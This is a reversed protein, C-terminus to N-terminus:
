RAVDRRRMGAAGLAVGGIAIALCAVIGVPDWAGVMPQGMHSTLALQHVWDPLNLPPALLDILYTAVVLVAAIEGALSTRWLGGVAFGVGIVAAAYLGLSASGLMVTGVAVDGSAGGAATAVAFILTMLADAILAGIAGTIVWRARTLPTALIQELRGDTEDSAWKAVFTAAAFGAAIYFLQVFLQLFGGASTLDFDPFATRFVKLLDPSAGIQQSMPGVLSALTAGFVGIGVGWALARPLQDGFSRSIPGGLGLMSAPLQPLGIGSTVGLDRRRFLEVGIALFAAAVVGVLALGAWDYQEVLAVHNATWHFPSLVALPGLVDLGNATWALALAIGAIGAAGGRGLLPALAFALGGFFLANLGLWLAFGIAALPAVPDGLAANGYANSSVTIMIALVALALVMMTLHAALKEVAIQRKGFPGAAVIDLSGRSAERALTSSLALISWVATVLVFVLGYKWTLYGGFTGLDVPKGFFTVMEPPMGGILKDIELRSDPTPFVTPIAAGMALALGGLLGAVIIFALRADRISKAYISGLGYIRSLLPVNRPAGAAPQAIATM